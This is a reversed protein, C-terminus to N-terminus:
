KRGQTLFLLKETALTKDFKAVHERLFSKTFKLCNINQNLNNIKVIMDEVSGVKSLCDRYEEGLIEGPGSLADTTVVPVGLYFAEVINLGFGEINSSMILCKARKLIPYPNKQWGFFLVVDKLGYNCALNKLQELEEGDGVVVLYEDSERVEAFAKITM